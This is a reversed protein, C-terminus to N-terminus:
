FYANTPPKYANYECSVSEKTKPEVYIAKFPLILLCGRTFLYVGEPFFLFYSM